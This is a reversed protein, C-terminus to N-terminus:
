IRLDLSWSFGKRHRPNNWGVVISGTSSWTHECHKLNDESLRSIPFVAVSVRPQVKRPIRSSAETSTEVISLFAVDEAHRCVPAATWAATCAPWGERFM